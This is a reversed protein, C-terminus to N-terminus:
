QVILNVNVTHTTNIAFPPNTTSPLGNASTATITLPYTGPAVGSAVPYGSSCASLSAAGAALAALLLFQITRTLRPLKGRRRLGLCLGALAVAAVPVFPRQFPSAPVTRSLTVPHYAPLTINLASSSPTTMAMISSPSFNYTAVSPMGFVSFNISTPFPAPNPTATLMVQGTGGSSSITVSAAPSTLNYDGATPYGAIAFSQPSGVANDTVVLAATTAGAVTPVFVISVVCKASAALTAGCTNTQTFPLLTSSGTIALTLSGINLTANGTNALTITGPASTTGVIVVNSLLPVTLSPPNGFTLTSSTYTTSYTATLVPAPAATGVGTLTVTQASGAVGGADDGVSIAATQTAATLPKFIVTITCNGGPALSAPLTTFCNQTLSYSGSGAGTLAISNFNLAATGSNTVTATLPASSVLVTTSPFTLTTPTLTVQSGADPHATLSIFQTTAPNNLSNSTIAIAGTQAAPNAALLTVAIQCTTGPALVSGAVCTSASNSALAFGEGQLAINSVSLPLNGGNYLLAVLPDTMVGPKASAFNLQARGRDTRSFSVADAHLLSGDSALALSQPLNATILTDNPAALQTLSSAHNLYLTGAADVAIPTFASAITGFTSSADSSTQPAAQWTIPSSVGSSTIRQLTDGGLVLNGDAAVLLSPPKTAPMAQAVLPTRTVTASSTSVKYISQSQTSYAHLEGTPAVAIADIFSAAVPLPFAGQTSEVTDFTILTKDAASSLLYLVGASDLALGRPAVLHQIPLLTRQGASTISTVTSATTDLLYLTGSDDIVATTNPASPQSTPSAVQLLALPSQGSGSLIVTALRQGNHTLFLADPRLGPRTPLFSLTVACSQVGAATSCTVASVTYDSGFHTTVTPIFNAPQGALTFTATLQQLSAGVAAAPFVIAQQSAPALSVAPSGSVAIAALKWGSASSQAGVHLGPLALTLYAATQLWRKLNV